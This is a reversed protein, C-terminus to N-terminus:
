SIQLVKLNSTQMTKGKFNNDPKKWSVDFGPAIVKGTELDIVEGYPWSIDSDLRHNM